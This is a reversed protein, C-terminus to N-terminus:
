IECSIFDEFSKVTQTRGSKIDDEAENLSELFDKQYLLEPAQSDLFDELKLYLSLAENIPLQSNLDTM